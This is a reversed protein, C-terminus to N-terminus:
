KQMVRGTLDQRYFHEQAVAGSKAFVVTRSLQRRGEVLTQPWMACPVRYTFFVATGSVADLFILAGLIDRLFAVDPPTNIVEQVTELTAQNSQM